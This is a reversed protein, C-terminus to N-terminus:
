LGEKGAWSEARQSLTHTLERHPHAVPWRCSHTVLVFGLDRGTGDEARQQQGDGRRREVERYQTGAYM